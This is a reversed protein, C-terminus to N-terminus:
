APRRRRHRLARAAWVPSRLIHVLYAGALHIASRRAWGIELRIWARSPLLARRVIDLKAGPSRAQALAGVHFVGRPRSNRHAIDWLALEASPLALRDALRAGAPLLRLGAAFAENGDLERALEAAQRWITLPWRELARRLDGMAKVDAPGHQAVHLAVGLASAPIGLTPISAGALEISGRDRSLAEWVVTDPAQCGELRWHLDISERRHGAAVPGLWVEAHLVGGVDDVGRTESFNYFGLESLVRGAALRQAPSVLVDVDAYGRPEDARYLLRALAPGKLLIADVEAQRFAEFANVAVADLRATHAILAARAVFEEHRWRRADEGGAGSAV